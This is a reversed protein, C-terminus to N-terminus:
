CGDRLAAKCLIVLSKLCYELLFFGAFFSVVTSHGWVDSSVFSHLFYWFSGGANVEDDDRGRIGGQSESRM